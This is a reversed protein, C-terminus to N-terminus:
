LDRAVKGLHFKLPCKPLLMEHWPKANVLGGSKTFLM